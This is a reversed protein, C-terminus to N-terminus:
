RIASENSNTGIGFRASSSASAPSFVSAPWSAFSSFLGFLFFRLPVFGSISGSSMGNQRAGAATFSLSPSLRNAGIGDRKEIRFVDRAQNFGDRNNQK